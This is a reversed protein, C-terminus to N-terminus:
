ARADLGQDKPSYRKFRRRLYLPSPNKVEHGHWPTGTAVCLGMDILMFSKLSEPPAYTGCLSDVEFINKIGWKPPTLDAMVDQLSQFRFHRDAISKCESVKAMRLSILVSEPGEVKYQDNFDVM